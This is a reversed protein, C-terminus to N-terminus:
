KEEKTNLLADLESVGNDAQKKSNPQQYNHNATHTM